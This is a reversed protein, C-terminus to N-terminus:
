RVLVELQKAVSAPDGQPAYILQLAAGQAAREQLQERCSEASGIVQIERLM